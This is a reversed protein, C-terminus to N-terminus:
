NSAVARYVEVHKRACRDWTYTRAREIGRPTLTRTQMASMISSAMSTIDFPDFMVAADGCIEPLSGACSAAVPCGSAMAELPPLGFGEYLSPFALCAAERYLNLLETRSVLGRVEVWDPVLGLTDLAGGTLVLRTEPHHERVLRMAEILRAHNKHPWGRAPYLVFDQRRGTNPEFARADVGLHAVHIRDLPIGLHSNIREKCFESITVVADARQSPRDYRFKRYWLEASSFHDPFDHHQTDLLTVVAPKGRPPRPSPVTLPYHVVDSDRILQRMPSSVEATLQSGLRRSASSGGRVSGALVSRFPLDPQAATAPLGVTIAVDEMAALAKALEVAYTESGGMGGPVLNMMPLSVRLVRTAHNPMPVESMEGRTDIEGSAKM